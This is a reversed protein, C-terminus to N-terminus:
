LFARQCLFAFQVRRKSVFVRNIWIKQAKDSNEIFASPNNEKNERIEEKPYSSSELGASPLPLTFDWRDLLPTGRFSALNKLKEILASIGIISIMRRINFCSALLSAEAKVGDRGRLLFADVKLNRKIHGFPLEAKQQRLKYIAQSEAEEYQAELRQRVEENILRTVQRGQQSKTCVGWHPCQKCITKESIMYVKNQERKNTRRYPLSHNEPCIYCDKESDYQFNSKDFAKPEKRSAQRQSPVVVKIKQKDIKQLENTNAYGSDACATDCKKELVENAQNIQEAFQNLDNNESVVDENVILGYKEDVVGQLNYGQHSGQLSNIRTCESDTTNIAKKNEEKLEKLINEVKVKLVKKNKLEKKMKVLSDQNQEYEDVADCESLIAEIRTDIKGLARECKEKTWTNKISANARVKSGDVFLTNGAILNLKICLRACTKLVNKLVAKNRRRFEAITKHDPKLGGMLWIFSVNHYIARELKRSSRLGYSYGYLLLKLMAKPNYEPCGVKHADLHLKLENFNLTEVFADYVRVPDDSNVYEEISLPLLEMQYRNGYRYAM